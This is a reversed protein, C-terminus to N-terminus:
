AGGAQGQFHGEGVPLNYVVREYQLLIMAEQWYIHDVCDRHCAHACMCAGECAHSYIYSYMQEAVWSLNISWETRLQPM